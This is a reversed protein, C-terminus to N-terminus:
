QNDELEREDEKVERSKPKLDAPHGPRILFNGEELQIVAGEILAKALKFRASHLDLWLSKRSIGMLSAATEQDLGQYDVLRVAEVEEFSMKIVGIHPRDIPGFVRVIPIESIWRPGRRRGRRPEFM